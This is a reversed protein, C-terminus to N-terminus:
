VSTRPKHNEAPLRRARPASISSPMSDLVSPPMTNKTRIKFMQEEAIKMGLVGPDMSARFPNFRRPGKEVKVTAKRIELKIGRWPATLKAWDEPTTKEELIAKFTIMRRKVFVQVSADAELYETEHFHTLWATFFSDLFRERTGLHNSKGYAAWHEEIFANKEMTFEIGM